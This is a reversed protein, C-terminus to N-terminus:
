GANAVVSLRVDCRQFLRAIFATTSDVASQTRVLGHTPLPGVASENGCAWTEGSNVVLALVALGAILVAMIGAISYPM